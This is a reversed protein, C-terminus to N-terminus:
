QKADRKKLSLWSIKTGAVCIFKSEHGGGVKFPRTGCKTKTCVFVIQHHINDLLDWNVIIDFYPM